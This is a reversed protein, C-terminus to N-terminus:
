SVFFYNRLVGISSKEVKVHNINKEPYRKLYNDIKNQYEEDGSDVIVIETNPYTQNAFARFSRKFSEYRNYTLMLCSVLPHM